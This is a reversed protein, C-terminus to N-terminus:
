YASLLFQSTLLNVKFRKACLLLRTSNVNEATGLNKHMRVQFEEKM